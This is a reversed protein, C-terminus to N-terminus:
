WDPDPLQAFVRRLGKAGNRTCWRSTPTPRRSAGSCSSACRTARTSSCTSRCASRSTALADDLRVLGAHVQDGRDAGTNRNISATSSRSATSPRASRSTAAHGAHGRHLQGRQLRPVAAAARRPDARRRPLQGVADINNQLLYPGDRASCRACRTASCARSTSCRSRTGSTSSRQRRRTRAESSSTSRTRRSRCTAPAVPDRDRPRRGARVGEDELLPRDPRRRRQHALRVRLDNRRRAVHRRLLDHSHPLRHMRAFDRSEASSSRAPRTWTLLDPVLFRESSKTASRASVRRLFDM